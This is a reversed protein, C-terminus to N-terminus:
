NFFYAILEAVAPGNQVIKLIKFAFFIFINKQFFYLFLFYFINKFFITKFFIKKFIWNKKNKTVWWRRIKVTRRPLILRMNKWICFNINLLISTIRAIDRHIAIHDIVVFHPITTNGLSFHNKSTSRWAFLQHLSITTVFSFISRVFFCQYWKFLPWPKMLYRCTWKVM